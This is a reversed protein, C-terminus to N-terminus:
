RSFYNNILEATQKPRNMHLYHDGETWLVELSKAKSRLLEEMEDIRDRFPGEAAYLGETGLLILVHCRIQAFMVEVVDWQERFNLMAQLRLDRSYIVGNAPTSVAVTSRKLLCTADERTLNGLQRHAEITAIIATEQSVVVQGKDGNRLTSKSLIPSSIPSPAPVIKIFRDFSDAVGKLMVDTPVTRPKMYDLLIIEDVDNPYLSSYFVALGAGLSHGIITFKKKKSQDNNVNNGYTSTMLDNGNIESEVPQIWDLETLCRRIEMVINVDSYSSGPPYQSSKGHGPLDLAVFYAEQNFKLLPILNDFSGANDMWGHLALIRKSDATEEYWTKGALKGYPVGFELEDIIIRRGM